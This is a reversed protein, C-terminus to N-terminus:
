YNPNGAKESRPVIFCRQSGYSDPPVPYTGRPFLDLGAAAYRRLDGLRQGTLYFDIARQARLEALLAAGSLTVAAKGAVARRGNVFTLMAGNPGDAELGIYRAELGSAIRIHTAVEITSPTSASWGSYMSPKLPPLIASGGLALRPAPPQPVRADDLRQFAPHMGLFPGPTKVGLQVVNNERVSNASYYSWREYADPVLAAHARATALDGRKLSARAAGVHAMSILDQGAAVNAGTSGATAVLISEEFRAVARALLEDPSLAPGGNVPADCFGEGLLVYAYGGYALTRAVDLNSAANAGLMLKVRATADDASQRARQLSTYVDDNITNLDDFEHRALARVFADTHDSYVEDALVGSWLAYRGYAYQFEGIAGNVIFQQLAPDALQGEQLSGPNSVELVGDCAAFALTM